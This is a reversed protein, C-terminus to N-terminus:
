SILKDKSLEMAKKLTLEGTYELAEDKLKQYRRNEKLNDLIQKCRRGRRRKKIQREISPKLLCNRHM